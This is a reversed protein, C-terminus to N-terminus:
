IDDWNMGASRRPSTNERPNKGGIPLATETTDPSRKETKKDTTTGTSATPQASKPPEKKEDGSAKTTSSGSEKKADGKKKTDTSPASEKKLDQRVPEGVATGLVSPGKSWDAINSGWAKESFQVIPAARDNGLFLGLTEKGALHLFGFVDEWGLNAAKPAPSRFARQQGEILVLWIGDERALTPWVHRTGTPLTRDWIEVVENGKLVALAHALWHGTAEWCNFSRPWIRERQWPVCASFQYEPVAVASEELGPDEEFPQARLFKTIEELTGFHIPIRQAYHVLSALCGGSQGPHEHLILKPM